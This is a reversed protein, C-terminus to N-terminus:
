PGVGSPAARVARSGLYDYRDAFVRAAYPRGSARASASPDRWDGGRYGAGSATSPAPWALVDADGGATLLGNGHLGTFNRGNTNGVM